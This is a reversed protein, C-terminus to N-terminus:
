NCNIKKAAVLRINNDKLSQIARKTSTSIRGDQYNTLTGDM